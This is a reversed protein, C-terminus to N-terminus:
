GSALLCANAFWPLTPLDHSGLKKAGKPWSQRVHAKSDKLSNTLIYAPNDPSLVILVVLRGRARSNSINHPNHFTGGNSNKGELARGAASMM